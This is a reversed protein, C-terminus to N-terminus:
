RILAGHETSTWRLVKMPGFHQIWARELQKIFEETREGGCLYRGALLRTTSDSIMLVPQQLRQGPVQICLTDAQVRQNLTLDRPMSSVPAGTPRQHLKCLPCQHERAATLLSSSANKDQLPRVLERKTPHGLNRHLRTITRWAKQM